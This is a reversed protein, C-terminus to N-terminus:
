LMSAGKYTALFADMQQAATAAIEEPNQGNLQCAQIADTIIKEIDPSVRPESRTGPYIDEAFIKLFGKGYTELGGELASKRPPMDSKVKTCWDVMRGVSDPSMSGLAWACFEGAAKPNEGKSNAVFAWGGGITVYKGGPPTPLRFVGFKFDPASERLQSIAWIGVNQMACYGAALNAVADSAGGGLCQRPAVGMNISDQWFKLAQITGQSNFASKGDKTLFDGGGQWMFPYWTFNQYAGPATQFLVGFRKGNTLKKAITLLEDWTKPVDKATLGIEAFAEVSYFMAMPEVEMPLGYIRNDFIRTTMVDAFFDARAKEEIYPTLDLLVGGNYYRLSLSPALIFIDPGSGSAFATPLKTGDVYDLAPVYVLEVKADHTDNWSKTMDEFWKAQLASGGGPAYFQWFKLPKNAAAKTTSVFPAFVSSVTAAAAFKGGRKILERRTIQEAADSVQNSRGDELKTETKPM